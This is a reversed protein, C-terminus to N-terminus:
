NRFVYSLKVFMGDQVRELRNFRFSTPETMTSGYGMYLVTGPSPVNSFLWDAQFTNSTGGLQRVYTTGQRLLLPDGNRADDRLTDQFSTAYQGVVRFFISRTLQYEVKVRPIHGNGVTSGDTRRTYFQYNYSGQVRLHETPNWNAGLTYFGIDASAWEFFNEDQGWLFLANLSFHSFQPTDLSFVYDRNPIRPTGVFATTDVVSGRHREVAYNAYYASDFGYTELLLSAGVHWGGKLIYNTNFHLKKEIADRGHLFRSYQWTGDLLVDLSANEILGTGPFFTLSHDILGHAVAARSIFGTSTRFDDGVGSLLYRANFMKGTRAVTAGWLPGTITPAYPRATRSVVGQLQASIAKTFVLRLDSGIVRNSAEGDEKDTMIVGLRSSSGLDRKLRLINFLPHDHGSISGPTDDVASLLAVNTGALKGTLKTAGLPSLIRRTYVLNSPTSFQELGELFFPRKEPIYLAQRPDTVFQAADSEVEAFDPNVTGNLTLNNTIGWRVNAGLRPRDADYGYGAAGPAGNVHTTAVPNVDLVVGRRLDTLGSIHGHQGIYSAAARRAPAWSYEYGRSQVKRLVNLSWTQSDTPPFTLSKFPIRIEVEYGYDTVRGRSRFLYDPRIDTPERGVSLGSFGSSAAGTEVLIGDGQVGLPNVGFVTAQRGDNFTGLFIGIYDDSFMKDRDALTARVTGPQAYARIGFHIATPSYWVLVETSDDAPADDSPAYRTFDVLRAAQQWAPEDLKGDITVEAEIRPLHIDLQKNRGSFADGAPPLALLCTLLLTCHM